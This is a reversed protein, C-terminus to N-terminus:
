ESEFSIGYALAPTFFECFTHTYEYYYYYYHIKVMRIFSIHVVWFRDQRIVYVFEVSIKLYLRIM